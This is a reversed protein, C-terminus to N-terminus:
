THPLPPVTGHMKFKLMLCLHSAPKVGNGVAFEGSIWQVTPDSSLLPFTPCFFIRKGWSPFQVGIRRGGLLRSLQGPKCCIYTLNNHLILVSSYRFVNSQIFLCLHTCCTEPSLVSRWLLFYWSTKITYKHTHHTVRESVAFYFEQRLIQICCSRHDVHVSINGQRRSLNHTNETNLFFLVVGV